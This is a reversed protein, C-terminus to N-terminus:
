FEGYGDMEDDKFNGKYRRGDPYSFVGYGNMRGKEFLGEM